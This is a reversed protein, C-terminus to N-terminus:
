LIQISNHIHRGTTEYWGQWKEKRYEEDDAVRGYKEVHSKGGIRGAERTHVSWTKVIVRRPLPIGSKEELLLASEHSMHFKEKAWDRLSRPHAKVMEGLGKWDISLRKKAETIFAAQAGSRLFILRDLSNRRSMDDIISCFCCLYFLYM